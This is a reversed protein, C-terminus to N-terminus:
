LKNEQIASLYAQVSSCYYAVVWSNSIGKNWMVESNDYDKMEAENKITGLM